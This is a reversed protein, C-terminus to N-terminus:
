DFLRLDCTELGGNEIKLLFLGEVEQPLMRLVLSKVEVFKRIKAGKFEAYM